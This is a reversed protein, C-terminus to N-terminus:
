TDMSVPCSWSTTGALNRRIETANSLGAGTTIAAPNHNRAWVSGYDMDTLGVGVGVGVYPTFRSSNHFDFYM